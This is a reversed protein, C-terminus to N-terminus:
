GAHRPGPDGRVSAPRHTGRRGTEVKLVDEAAPLARKTAMRHGVTSGHCWQSAIREGGGPPGPGSMTIWETKLGPVGQNASHKEILKLSEMVMQPLFPLGYQKGLRISTVQATATNALAPMALAGLVVTRRTPLAM